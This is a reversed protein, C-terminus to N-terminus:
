PSVAPEAPTTWVADLVVAGQGAPLVRLPNIELLDLPTETEAVLQSISVLAKILADVDSPGRGRVGQLLAELHPVSRILRVAEPETLPALHQKAVATLEVLIGGMGLVVYSGFVDDDVLSVIVDLGDPSQEEVFIYGAGGLHQQCVQSVEDFAQALEDVTRIDTRVLGLDTKHLITGHIAAKLVVPGGSLAEMVTSADSALEMRMSSPVTLGMESLLLKARDEALAVVEEVSTDVHGVEAPAPLTTATSRLSVRRKSWESIRSLAILPRHFDEFVPLQAEQFMTYLKQPGCVWSIVIPKDHRRAVEIVDAALREGVSEQLGMSLYLVDVSRDDLVAELVGKLMAPDNVLQATADVPNLSSGFDPLLADLRARTEDTLEAVRLGLLGCQDAAWVGLGGSISVMALGPDGVLVGCQTLYLVDLMQQVDEVRIVNTQEFVSEYLQDDGVLAATHSAAAQKARDSRGVKVLVIPKGKEGARTAVEVFHAGDKIGEMYGGIGTVHEDDVMHELGEAFTVDVENGVSLFHRFSVGMDEAMSYILGGFAGSHTVFSISGDTLPLSGERLWTSAFSAVVQPGSSSVGLSNPGVLRVGVQAAVAVLEAQLLRGADGTEAFGASFIVAFGTNIRGLDRIADLVRDASVAIIALDVPKGIDSIQQYCRLGQVTERGPNVPFIDGSFGSRILFELPRGGIRSPDASAGVVAVSRPAFLRELSRDPEATSM